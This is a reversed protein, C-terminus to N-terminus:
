KQQTSKLPIRLLHGNYVFYVKNETEDVWMNMSTFSIKPLKLVPTFTFSRSDFTGVVTDEKGSSPRAAWFENPKITPQLPRFTQTSLPRADGNVPTLGGTEPDLLYFRRMPSNESGQDSNDAVDDYGEYYYGAAVLFKGVAPIYCRARLSGDGDFTVKYERNTVLNYRVLTEGEDEDAHAVAVWRGNPTIVASRYDGTKLRISRGGAVKYLGTSDTRIEIGAARAKWTEDDPQIDLQDRLPIYEIGAPEAVADGLGGNEVHHWAFGEYERKIRMRDAPSLMDPTPEPKTADAVPEEDSDGQDDREAEELEGIEEEVKERVAKNSVVIRLDGGQKWVTQADLEDSAFLLELGPVEKGLAYKIASPEARFDSLIKELGAFFEPLSGASM